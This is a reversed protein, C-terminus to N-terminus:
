TAMHLMRNYHGLQYRTTGPGAPSSNAYPTVALLRLDPRRCRGPVKSTLTLKFDVQFQTQTYYGLPGPRGTPNEMRIRVCTVTPSM